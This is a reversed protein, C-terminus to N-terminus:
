TEKSLVRNNYRGLAQTLFANAFLAWKLKSEPILDATAVACALLLQLHGFTETRRTWMYTLIKNM